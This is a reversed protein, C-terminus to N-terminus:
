RKREFFMFSVLAILVSYPKQPLSMKILLTGCGQARFFLFNGM